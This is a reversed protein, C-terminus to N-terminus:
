GLFDQLKPPKHKAMVVIGHFSGHDFIRSM